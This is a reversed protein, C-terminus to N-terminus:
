GFRERAPHAPYVGLLKISSSFFGLEELALQVPREDPHGEIEAYFQSANFSGEIQYSELKTMNVGNTAFGGLAKYLASPINRVQFLFATVAKGDSAALDIPEPAMIVFRTTNHQADEIDHALIELGYEEAALSPAIAAAKADGQGAVFRAAGATDAATVATINRDRLFNRCQGLAMVHSYAQEIEDIKTGPLAMLQFKIRMFHEGIMHLSSGPLLHHIDGVRGAITNEVPIMALQAEGSEVAAFVDEFTRCPMAEFDPYVDKCAIHSNAGREGQYAIVKGNGSM